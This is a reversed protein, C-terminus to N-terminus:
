EVGSVAWLVAQRPPEHKHGWRKPTQSPLIARLKLGTQTNSQSVTEFSLCLSGRETMQLPSLFRSSVEARHSTCVLPSTKWLM